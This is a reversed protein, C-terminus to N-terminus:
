KTRKERKPTRPKDKKMHRHELKVHHRKAM